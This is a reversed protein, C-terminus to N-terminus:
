QHLTILNYLVKTKQMCGAILKQRVFQILAIQLQKIWLFAGMWANLTNMNVHNCCEHLILKARQSHMLNDTPSNPAPFHSSLFSRFSSVGVAATIM